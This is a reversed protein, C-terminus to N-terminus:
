TGGYAGTFSLDSKSGVLVNIEFGGLERALSFFAIFWFFLLAFIGGSEVCLELGLVAVVSIMSGNGIREILARGRSRDIWVKKESGSKDLM